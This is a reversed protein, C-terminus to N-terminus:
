NAHLSCESVTSMKAELVIYLLFIDHLSQLAHSRRHRWLLPPAQVAHLNWTADGTIQRRFGPELYLSKTDSLLPSSGTGGSPVPIPFLTVKAYYHHLM